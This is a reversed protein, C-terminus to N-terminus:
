NKHTLSKGLFTRSQVFNQQSKFGTREVFERVLVGSPWFDACLLKSKAEPQVGIKFSRYTDYRSKLLVCEGLVGNVKIYDEIDKATVETSLRSVFVWDKKSVVKLGVKVELSHDDVKTGIIPKYSKRKRRNVQTQWVDVRNSIVSNRNNNGSILSPFDNDYDNLQSSDERVVIHSSECPSGDVVSDVTEAAAEGNGTESGENRLVVSTLNSSSNQNSSDINDLKANIVKNESSIDDIRKNLQLNDNVVGKVVKVLSDLISRTNILDDVDWVSSVLRDLKASCSKCYWKVIDSLESIKNYREIEINICTPHYWRRCFGECCLGDGDSDIIIDCIDCPADSDKDDVM